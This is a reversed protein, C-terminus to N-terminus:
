LTYTCKAEPQCLYDTSSITCKAATFQVDNPDVKQLTMYCNATYSDPKKDYSADRLWWASGDSTRWQQQKANASNMPGTCGSCANNQPKTVDVIVHNKKPYNKIDNGLAKWVIEWDNKNRPSWIKYGDPCSNKDTTKSVSRGNSVRVVAGASYGPTSLVKVKCNASSGKRCSVRM